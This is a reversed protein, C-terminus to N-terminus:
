ARGPGADTRRARGPRRQRGVPRRCRLRDRGPSHGPRHRDPRADGGSGTACSTSGNPGDTAWSTSSRGGMATAPFDSWRPDCDRKTEATTRHCSPSGSPRRIHTRWRRKIRLPARTARAPGSRRDPAPVRRAGSAGRRGVRCRRGRARDPVAARVPRPAGGGGDALARGRRRFSDAVRGGAVRDVVGRGSRGVDGDIDDTALAFTALGERGADLLALTARGVASGTPSAVLARDFVGILEIYTDGLFALRNFTGWADHRGGGTFGIGLDREIAAAAADPDRVAIVLHDIGLLM